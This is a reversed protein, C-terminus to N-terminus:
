RWRAATEFRYPIAGEPLVFRVKNQAFDISVWDFARRASIGLLIAPKNGCGLEKFIRANSFAVPFDTLTIGGLDLQQVRAM